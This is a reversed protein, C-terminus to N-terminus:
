QSEYPTGDKHRYDAGAPEAVMDIDSYFCRDNADDANGVVLVLADHDSRNILHHGDPDGARCAACDGPTLREEGNNTALMLEGEVVMVFEDEHTHWHRPSSWAGPPLRELNVDFATLGASRGLRQWSAAACPTNFPPPYNSGSEIAINALDCKKAM